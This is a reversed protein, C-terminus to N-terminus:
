VEEYQKTQSRKPLLGGGISAIVAAKTVSLGVKQTYREELKKNTLPFTPVWFATMLWNVWGRHLFIQIEFDIGPKTECLTSTCVLTCGKAIRNSIVDRVVTRTVAGLVLKEVPKDMQSLRDILQNRMSNTGFDLGFRMVYTPKKM